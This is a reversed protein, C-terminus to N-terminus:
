KKWVRGCKQMRMETQRNWSKKKEKELPWGKKRNTLNNWRNIPAMPAKERSSWQNPKRHDPDREERSKSERCFSLFSPFSCGGTEKNVAPARKANGRKHEVVGKGINSKCGRRRLDAGGSTTKGRKFSLLEFPPPTIEPRPQGIALKGWKKGGAIREYEGPLKEM